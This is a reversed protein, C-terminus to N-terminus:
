SKGLWGKRRFYCIPGVTLVACAAWFLAYGYRWRLEPLVDFNMGYVGALFTIPSFIAAFVALFKMVEGLRVSLASMYLETLGIAVERFTELIDMAHVTHEYVDRLYMRTAETFRDAQDRRLDEAMQRMPWLARRMMLLERKVVHVRSILEPTPRRLLDIELSELKDGYMELIPFLHDVLADILAYLLFDASSQRLRSGAAHIRDRVPQWPDGPDEQFTLVTGPFLFASLQECHLSQNAVAIMQTVIFLHGPYAEVRPRQPLHLVDEAALTHFNYTERLRNVVYPYLGDINVWRVAVWEPRPEALFAELDQIARDEVREPSYDICRILVKGPPPPTALDERHEIGAASGPRPRRRRPEPSAGFLRIPSAIVRGFVGATRVGLHIAEDIAGGIAQGISRVHRSSQDGSPPM